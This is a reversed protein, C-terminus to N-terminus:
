RQRRQLLDSIRTVNSGEDSRLANLVSGACGRYRYEEPNALRSRSSKVFGDSSHNKVLDGDESRCYLHIVGTPLGAMAAIEKITVKEHGKAALRDYLAWVIQRRREPAKSARAM